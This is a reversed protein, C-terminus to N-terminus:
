GYFSISLYGRCDDQSVCAISRRLSDAKINKNRFAKSVHFTSVSSGQRRPVSIHPDESSANGNPYWVYLEADFSSFTKYKAPFGSKLDFEEPLQEPKKSM